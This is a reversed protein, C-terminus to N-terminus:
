PQMVDYEYGGVRIEGLASSNISLVIPPQVSAVEIGGVYATESAGCGSVRVRAVDGDPLYIYPTKACLDVASGHALLLKRMESIAIEQVVMQQQSNSVRAAMFMVGAGVIGMLLVGMMAEILFDGQQHNIKKNM